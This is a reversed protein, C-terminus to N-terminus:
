PKEELLLDALKKEMKLIEAAREKAHKLQAELACVECWDSALGHAIALSGGDGIWKLTAKRKKCNACKM